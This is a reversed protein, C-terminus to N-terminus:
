GRKIKDRENREEGSNRIEIKPERSWKPRIYAFWIKGCCFTNALISTILPKQKMKRKRENCYRAAMLETCEVGDLDNMRFEEDGFEVNNDLWDIDGFCLLEEIWLGCFLEWFLEWLLETLLKWLLKACDGCDFWCCKDDGTWVELWIWLLLFLLWDDGEWWGCCCFKGGCAYARCCFCLLKRVNPNLAPPDPGDRRSLWTLTFTVGVDWSIVLSVGSIRLYLFRKLESIRHAANHPTLKSIPVSFPRINNSRDPWPFTCWWDGGIMEILQHMKIM